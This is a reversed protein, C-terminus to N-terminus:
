YRKEFLYFDGEQKSSLVWNEIESRSFRYQNHLKYYPIKGDAIWRRITAESVTLLDAVDRLKLDMGIIGLLNEAKYM